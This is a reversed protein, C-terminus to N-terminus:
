EDEKTNQITSNKKWEDFYSELDAYWLKENETAGIPLDMFQVHAHPNNERDFKYFESVIESEETPSFTGKQRYYYHPLVGETQRKISELKNTVLDTLLTQIGQILISYSKIVDGSYPLPSVREFPDDESFVLCYSDFKKSTNGYPKLLTYNPLIPFGAHKYRRYIQAHANRFNRVIVLIRKVAEVNTEILKRISNNSHNDVKKYSLM